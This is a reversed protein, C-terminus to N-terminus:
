RLWHDLFARAAPLTLESAACAGGHGLGPLRLSEGHPIVAAFRVADDEEDELEGAILLAPVPFDELHTLGESRLERSQSALLAEPDARLTVARAWVPFETDFRDGGEKAFEEVLAETGGTRLAAGWGEEFWDLDEDTEPGPDWAGAAIIAVVREPAAAATMWAIWGGYSMGWIAFRDLGEADAVALVDNTLLDVGYASPEHPKDSAGHGRLDMNVVRHDRALDEVYGPQSFWSRDCSWGHLLVLPQGHGVADYDIRVGDNVIEAM